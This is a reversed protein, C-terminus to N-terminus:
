IEKNQIQLHTGMMQPPLENMGTQSHDAHHLHPIFLYPFFDYSKVNSRSVGMPLPSKWRKQPSKSHSLPSSPTHDARRPPVPIDISSSSSCPIAEFSMCVSEDVIWHPPHHFTRIPDLHSTLSNTDTTFTTDPSSVLELLNAFDRPLYSIPPPHSPLLGMEMYAATFSILLWNLQEKKKM